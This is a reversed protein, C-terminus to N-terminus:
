FQCSVNYPSAPHSLSIAFTVRPHCHDLIYMNTYLKYPNSLNHFIVCGNFHILVILIFISLNKEVYKFFGLNRFLINHLWMLRLFNFVQGPQHPETSQTLALRHFSPDWNLERDLACAQAAHWTGLLPHVVAVVCQHKEGERKRGEM